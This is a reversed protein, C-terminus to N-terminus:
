RYQKKSWMYNQYFRTIKSRIKYTRAYYEPKTLFKEKKSKWNERKFPLIQAIPTGQEIIGEFEKDLFLTIVLDLNGNDDTDIIGSMTSFPLDFRNFPHTILTSYGKPTEVIYGSHVRWPREAHNKPVIFNNLRYLQETDIFSGDPRQTGWFILHTGNVLRVEIDQPLCIMYGSTLTDMVPICKKITGSFRSPPSPLKLLDEDSLKIDPSISKFWEPIKTYSPVPPSESLDIYESQPIFKINQSLEKVAGNM